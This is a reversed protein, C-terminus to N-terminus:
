VHQGELHSQHWQRATETFFVRMDLQWGVLACLAYRSNCVGIDLSSAPVLQQLLLYAFANASGGQLSIYSSSCILQRDMWAVAQNCPFTLQSVWPVELKGM